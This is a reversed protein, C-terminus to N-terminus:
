LIKLNKQLNSLLTELLKNENVSMIPFQNVM